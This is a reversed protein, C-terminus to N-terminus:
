IREVRGWRNATMARARVTSSAPQSEGTRSIGVGTLKRVPAISGKSCAPVVAFPVSTGTSYTVLRPATISFGSGIWVMRGLSLNRM